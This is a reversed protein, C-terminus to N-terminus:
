KCYSTQLAYSEGSKTLPNADRVNDANRSHGAKKLPASQFQIRLFFFASSANLAFVLEFRRFHCLAILFISKAAISIIIMIMIM